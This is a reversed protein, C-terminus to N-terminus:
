RIICSYPCHSLDIHYNFVHWIVMVHMKFVVDVYKKSKMGNQHVEAVVEVTTTHHHERMQYQCM